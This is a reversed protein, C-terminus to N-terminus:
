GLTSRKSRLETGLGIVLAVLYNGNMKEKMFIGMAGRGVGCVLLISMSVQSIDGEHM